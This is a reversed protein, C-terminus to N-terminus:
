SRIDQLRGRKPILPKTNLGAHRALKAIAKGLEVREFAQVVDFVDGGRNCGFCHWRKEDPYIVGSPTRDQGHLTCRFTWKRQHLFVQTYWELVDQIPVAEKIAQIIENNTHIISKLDYQKKRRREIEAQLCKIYEQWFFPDTCEEDRYMGKTSTWSPTTDYGLREITAQADQIEYVLRSTTTGRFSKPMLFTIDAM